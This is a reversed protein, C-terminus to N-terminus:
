DFACPPLFNNFIETHNKFAETYNQYLKQVNRYQKQVNEFIKSRKGRFWRRQGRKFGKVIQVVGSKRIKQRGDGWDITEVQANPAIGDQGFGGFEVACFFRSVVKGTM